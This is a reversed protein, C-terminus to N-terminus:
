ERWVTLSSKDAEGGDESSYAFVYYVFMVTLMGVGLAVFAPKGFEGSVITFDISLAVALLHASAEDVPDYL